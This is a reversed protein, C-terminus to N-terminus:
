PAGPTHIATCKGAYGGARTYHVGFRDAALIPSDALMLSSVCLPCYEMPTTGGARMCDDCVPKRLTTPKGCGACVINPGNM